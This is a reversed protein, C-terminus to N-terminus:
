GARPLLWRWRCALWFRWFCGSPLRSCLRGCSSDAAPAVGNAGDAALLVNGGCCRTSCSSGSCATSTSSCLGGFRGPRLNGRRDIRPVARPARPIHAPNFRPFGAPLSSRMLGSHSRPPQQLFRGFNGFNCGGVHLEAALIGVLALRSWQGWRFRTFLQERVHQLAPQVCDVASAPLPDGRAVGGLYRPSLQPTLSSSSRAHAAALTSRM